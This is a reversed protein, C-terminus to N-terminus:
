VAVNTDTHAAAVAASRRRAVPGSEGHRRPLRRGLRCRNCCGDAGSVCGRRHRGSGPDRDGANRVGASGSRCQASGGMPVARAGRRRRRLLVLTGPRVGAFRIRGDANLARARSELAARDPGDGFLRLRDDAGDNAVMDIMRDFGKQRTLRGAAVFRRGPGSDRRPPDARLRASDVPNPLIVTREAPVGFRASMEDAMARHQCLVLDATPYLLRCARWTFASSRTYAERIVLRTGAPLLPRM